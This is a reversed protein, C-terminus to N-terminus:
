MGQEPRSQTANLFSLVLLDCLIGLFLRPLLGCIRTFRHLHSPGSDNDASISCMWQELADEGDEAVVVM